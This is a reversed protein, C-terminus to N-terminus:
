YVLGAGAWGLGRAGGGLRGLLERTGQGRESNGSWALVRRARGLEGLIPFLRLHEEFGGLRGRLWLRRAEEVDELRGEVLLYEGEGAVDVHELGNLLLLHRQIPLQLPKIHPLLHRLDHDFSGRVWGGM